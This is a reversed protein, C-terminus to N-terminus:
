GGTFSLYLAYRPILSPSLYECQGRKLQALTVPTDIDYFATTGRAVQSVWRGVAIGQPVYSGVIVVDAQAVDDAFRDRLDTLSRYLRVRCFRAALLDRNDAYWPVDRELF